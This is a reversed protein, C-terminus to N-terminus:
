LYHKSTKRKGGYRKFITNLYLMNDETLFEKRILNRGEELLENVKDLDANYMKMIDDGSSYPGGKNYIWNEMTMKLIRLKNVHSHDIGVDVQGVDYHVSNEDHSDKNLFVGFGKDGPMVTTIKKYKM